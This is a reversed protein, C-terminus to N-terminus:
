FRNNLVGELIVQEINSALGTKKDCTILAGCFTAKGNAPFHKKADPDKFFKKLSNEKNMGIVSNYDGCMGLDSQFATGKEMVRFDSTPVHTHTGVVATAKGDFFHGMAMKESTTEAHVDIVIFDAERKLKIKESIKKAAQFVDESKKMFVNGMLNIVAVNYSKVNFIEYGKGPQGAILNIPRLIRKDTDIVELIEKESWIHNGSTIVNVGYNFLDSTNKKSIGLGTESANEANAIVFDIKKDRIVKPLIKKIVDVGPSGFVDGLILIKM